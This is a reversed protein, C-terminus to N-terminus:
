LINRRKEILPAISKVFKKINPSSDQLSELKSMILQLEDENLYNTKVSEDPVLRICGGGFGGHIIEINFRYSLASVHRRVSSYSCEVANAIDQYTHKKYDSICDLIDAQINKSRVKVGGKTLNSVQM